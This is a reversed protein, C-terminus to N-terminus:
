DLSVAFKVPQVYTGPEAAGHLRCTITGRRVGSGTWRGVVQPRGATLPLLGAEEGCLVALDATRLGDPAELAGDPQITLTVDGFAGTRAAARYDATAGSVGGGAAVEFRLRTTSVQLSTRPALSTQLTLTRTGVAQARLPAQWVAYGLVVSAVCTTVRTLM